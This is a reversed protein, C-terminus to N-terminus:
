RFWRKLYGIAMRKYGGPIQLNIIDETTEEKNKYNNLQLVWSQTAWKGTKKLKGAIRMLKGREGVDHTRFSGSFFSSPSKIRIRLQRGRLEVPM